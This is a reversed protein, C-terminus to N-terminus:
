KNVEQRGHSPPPVGNELVQVSGDAAREVTLSSMASLPLEASSMGNAHNRLTATAQASDQPIKAWAANTTTRAAAASRAAPAMENAKDTLARIESDTLTRLKGTTPDIGAVMGNEAPPTPADSAPPEAAYAIASIGLSLASSLLITKAVKM